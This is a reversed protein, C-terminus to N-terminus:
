KKIRELEQVSRPIWSGGWVNHMKLKPIDELDIRGSKWLEYRGPGIIQRQYGSSQKQFWGPGSDWEPNPVGNVLPVIACRGQPHEHFHDLTPVIQGDVMLCAPCVRSDHTALRKYGSVLGTRIYTDLTATRYARLQETRAINLSRNLGVGFKETILNATERPNLGRALSDAIAAEIGGAADAFAGILLNGLPRGPGSVGAFSELAGVDLLQFRTFNLGSEVFTADLVDLANQQALQAWQVRKADILNAAYQNYLAVESNVQAMLENWRALTRVKTITVKKGQLTLTEIELSLADIAGRLNAEIVLWRQAMEAVQNAEAEALAKKFQRVLRIIVPEQGPPPIPEIPLVM